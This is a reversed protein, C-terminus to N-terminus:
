PHSGKPAIVTKSLAIKLSFAIESLPPKVSAISKFRGFRGRALVFGPPWM